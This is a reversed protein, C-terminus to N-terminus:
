LFGWDIRTSLLDVLMESVRLGGDKRKARGELGSLWLWVIAGHRGMGGMEAELFVASRM